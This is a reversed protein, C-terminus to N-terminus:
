RWLCCVGSWARATPAASSAIMPLRLSSSKVLMYGSGTTGQVLRVDPDLGWWVSLDIGSFNLDGNKAVKVQFLMCGIGM